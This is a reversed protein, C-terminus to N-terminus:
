FRNRKLKEYFNFIFGENAVIKLINLISYNTIRYRKEFKVATGTILIIIVSVQFTLHRLDRKKQKRNEKDDLFRTQTQADCAWNGIDWDNWNVICILKWSPPMWHTVIETEFLKKM